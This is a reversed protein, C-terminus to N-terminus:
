LLVSPLPCARGFAITHYRHVWFSAGKDVTRLFSQPLQLFEVPYTRAATYDKQAGRIKYGWSETKISFGSIIDRIDLDSDDEFYSLSDKVLVTRVKTGSCNTNGTLLLNL